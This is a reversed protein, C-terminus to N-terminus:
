EDEGDEGDDAYRSLTSDDGYEDILALALAVATGERPYGQRSYKDAMASVEVHGHEYQYTDSEENHKTQEGLGIRM